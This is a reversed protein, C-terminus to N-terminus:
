PNSPTGYSQFDESYGVATQGQALSMMALSVVLGALRMAKGFM